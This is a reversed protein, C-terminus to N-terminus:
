EVSIKLPSEATERMKPITVKLVGNKSKATIHEADADSPLTFRRSFRGYMREIRHQEESDDEREFHREGSITLMGNDFAVEVDKKDVDPLEAKILYAKKTESIDVSPRWDFEAGETEQDGRIRVRRGPWGYVRNFLGEMDRFPEWNVLNM